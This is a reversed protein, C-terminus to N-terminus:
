FHFSIGGVINSASYDAKFQANGEFQFSARNYKYEGFLAVHKTLFYRVGALANLGFSFDSASLPQNNVSQVQNSSLSAGYMGLGVGVYPQFRKGPYRAIVNIAGTSMSVHAGPKPLLQITQGNPTTLTPAQQQKTHPNTHFYEGEIGLWNLRPFFFGVKAGLLVSNALDIDTFKFGAGGFNPGLGEVNSFSGPFSIGGQGAVYFESQATASTLIVFGVLIISFTWRCLVSKQM